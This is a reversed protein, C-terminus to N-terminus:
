KGIRSCRKKCLGLIKALTIKKNLINVDAGSNLLTTLEFMEGKICINVKVHHQQYSIALLRMEKFGYVPDKKGEIIELNPNPFRDYQTTDWPHPDEVEKEVM